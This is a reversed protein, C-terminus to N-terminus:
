DRWTHRILIVLCVVCIILVTMGAGVVCGRLFATM